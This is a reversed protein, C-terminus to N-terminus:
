FKFNYTVTPVWRFLSTQVAETKGPETESERFSIIWPNERGYANYLGFNWNSEFKESKHNYWTLGIDLRHYAPMRYGNRETYLWQTHGDLEYKGSPFTVANGTSYVWSSSFTLKENIKYMGVLAIDHTRDQRAAYWNNDNIGDIQKETRSLTYSVSWTFQGTKKRFFLELGYARGQGFLLEGEIKDNAFTNAGNRYDIQNQMHKYYTEASFEYMNKKFNQFWGVSVQDAIEPKVNNSSPIWLDTPTSSTSNSILHLNQTNRNYGFKISKRENVMYVMALRPELNFYTKVFEGAKYSVTDIAEGNDDYSYFDGEGISSFSTLRLGYTITLKETALWDNTFYAANEWSYRDQLTPFRLSGDTSEVQGPTIIHYISNLGFKMTNRTNPQFMFDQKINFDRIKSNINVDATGTSVFINYDYNSYILSTNSFFKPSIISNWRLTGTANGWDIGFNDGFGLKDRGFYGSAFIKNKDNIRYNAKMNLDYFYLSNDKFDDTLKLFADAYTRRGSVFFSGKDKVIPGEVNLRAAILGLGGSTHFTQNNGELMKIDMVSSLRGGYEAPMGGKYLTVDKIADSNFTSFFGLLHSANYVPAEDLLILNQDAAGGRVFYGANGDGGSKYGPTMLTFTRMIDKEIFVPIAEIDRPKLTVPSGPTRVNQDQAESTIEVAKLAQSNVALKFNIVTNQKLEVVQEVTKYGLYRVLLTYKGEPLTLSYYGYANCVAGATPLEKVTVPVSIMTEGNSSDTITGSVTFRATTQAMATVSFLAIFLLLFYKM